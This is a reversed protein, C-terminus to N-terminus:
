DHKKKDHFCLMRAWKSKWIKISVNGLPISCMGRLGDNLGLIEHSRLISDDRCGHYENLRPLHLEKRVYWEDLCGNQAKLICVNKYWVHADSECKIDNM